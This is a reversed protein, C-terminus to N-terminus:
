SVVDDDYGLVGEPWPLSVHIFLLGAFVLATVLWALQISVKDDHSVGSHAGDGGHCCFYLGCPISYADNIEMLMEKYINPQVTLAYKPDHTNCYFCTRALYLRGREHEYLNVDTVLKVNQRLKTPVLQYDEGHLEFSPTRRVSAFVNATSVRSTGLHFSNPDDEYLSSLVSDVEGEDYTAESRISNTPVNISSEISQHQHQYQEVLPAIEEDDENLADNTTDNVDGDTTSGYSEALPNFTLPQQSSFSERGTM